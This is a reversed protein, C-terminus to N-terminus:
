ILLFQEPKQSARMAEEYTTPIPVDCTVMASLINFQKRPRGPRCTRLLKPIGPGIRPIQEEELKKDDASCEDTADSRSTIDEGGDNEADTQEVRYGVNSMDFTVAEGKAQELCSVEDFLVNRKNVVTRSEADYLRYCNAQM